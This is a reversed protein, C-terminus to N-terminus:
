FASRLFQAVELRPFHAPGFTLSFAPKRYCPALQRARDVRASGVLAMTEAMRQYM